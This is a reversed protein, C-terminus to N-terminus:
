AIKLSILLIQRPIINERKEDRYEEYFEEEGMIGLIASFQALVGALAAIGGVGGARLCDDYPCPLLVRFWRSPM